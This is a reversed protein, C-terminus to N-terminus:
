FFILMLICCSDAWSGLNNANPKYNSGDALKFCIKAFETAKNYEEISFFSKLDVHEYDNDHM